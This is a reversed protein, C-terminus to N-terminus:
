PTLPIASFDLYAWGVYERYHITITHTGSTLFREASKRDWAADIELIPEGDILLETLDDASLNFLYAAGGSGVEFTTEFTASFFDENVGDPAAHGWINLLKNREDFTEIRELAPEGSLTTNNFYRATWGSQPAPTLRDVLLQVRAPFTKEKYEVYIYNNGKNLPVDVISPLIDPKVISTSLDTAETLNLVVQNNVIVKLTDDVIATLRYTAAEDLHITRRWRVAFFDNPIRPDPSGSGWDFDIIADDRTFVPQGAFWENDYYEGRWPAPTEASVRGGFVMLSLLILLILRKM